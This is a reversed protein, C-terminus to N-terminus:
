NIRIGERTLYQLRMVRIFIFHALHHKNLAGFSHKQRHSQLISFPFSTSRSWTNSYKQPTYNYGVSRVRKKIKNRFIFAFLKTLPVLISIRCFEAIFRYFESFQFNPM